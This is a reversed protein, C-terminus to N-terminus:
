KLKSWGAKSAAQWSEFSKTVKGNSLQFIRDIGAKVLSAKFPTKYKKHTWM